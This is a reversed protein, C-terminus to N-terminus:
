VREGDDLVGWFDGPEPDPEATEDDLEFVDWLDDSLLCPQLEDGDEGRDPSFDDESDLLGTEGWHRGNPRRQEACM